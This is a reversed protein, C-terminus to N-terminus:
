CWDRMLALCRTRLCYERWNPLELRGPRSQSQSICTATRRALSKKVVKGGLLYPTAEEDLAGCYRRV